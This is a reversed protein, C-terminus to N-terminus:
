QSTGIFSLEPAIKSNLPSQFKFYHFLTKDTEEYEEFPSDEWAYEKPKTATTEIRQTIKKMPDDVIFLSNELLCEGNEENQFM